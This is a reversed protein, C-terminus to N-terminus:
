ALVGVAPTGKGHSSHILINHSNERRDNRRIERVLPKSGVRRDHQRNRSLFQRVSIRSKGNFRRKFCETLRRIEDVTNENDESYVELVAYIYPKRNGDRAMQYVNFQYDDRDIMEATIGTILDQTSQLACNGIYVGKTFSCTLGLRTHIIRLLPVFRWPRAILYFYAVFLLLFAVLMWDEPVRSQLGYLGIAGIVLHILTIAYVIDQIRFGARIFLHHLHHRDPHFPSKGLWIRRSMVAVTDMLPISYLWLATVPSITRNPEQSLSIFFWAFLFGLVMSGNDGLFVRARYQRLYRMNYYLFGAVGGSMGLALASYGWHGNSLAIVSILYLSVLSVSGSLGDIGDIMNLANIVGVTAFLTIPISLFGLQLKQGFDLLGLDSLVVGGGLAMLLATFSQILLRTKFNLHYIDDVLGTLFMASAGIGLVLWEASSDAGFLRVILLTTILAAFVGIGGVFPTNQDHLKHGGPCDLIGVQQAILIGIRILIWSFLMGPGFLTLFSILGLNQMIYM